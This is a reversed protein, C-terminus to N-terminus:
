QSARSGSETSGQALRGLTRPPADGDKTQGAAIGKNPITEYAYGTLTATISLGTNVVNLRAWGYHIKGHIKFKLGLYRSSVNLWKGYSKYFVSDSQLISAMMEGYRPSGVFGQGGNIPAGRELALAVGRNMGYGIVANGPGERALLRNYMFATSGGQMEQIKFDVTGDHNLDLSYHGNHGIVHHAKTYVIKGEASQASLLGVGAATAAIAYLALKHNVAESLEAVPRPQRANM